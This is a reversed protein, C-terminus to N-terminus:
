KNRSDSSTVVRAPCGFVTKCPEVSRLVVSGAGVISNDGISLKPVVTARTHLTVGNGIQVNGAIATYPELECFQGIISDHGINCFTLICTYDGICVNADIYCYPGIFVGKGIEVNEAIYAYKNVCSIFEGGKAEIIEIYKKRYFPDGIACIFYDNPEIEYDEVSSLIPPYGKYEDLLTKNDDLFGKVKCDSDLCKKEKLVLCMGRGFGRAGIIVINKM